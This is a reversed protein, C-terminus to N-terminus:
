EDAVPSRATDVADRRRGLRRGFGAARGPERPPGAAATGAAPWGGRDRRDAAGGRLRHFRGAAAEMAGPPLRALQRGHENGHEPLQPLRRRARPEPRLRATGDGARDPHDQRREVDFLEVDDRCERNSGWRRRALGHRRPGSTRNQNSTANEADRGKKSPVETLETRTPAGYSPCLVIRLARTDAASGLTMLGWGPTVFVRADYVRVGLGTLRFPM